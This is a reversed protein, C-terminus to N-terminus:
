YYIDVFFHHGYEVFNLYFTNNIRVNAVMKREKEQRMLDVVECVKQKVYVISIVKITSRTACLKIM